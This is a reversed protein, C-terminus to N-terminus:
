PHKSDPSVSVEGPNPTILEKVELKVKEELINRLEDAQEKTCIVKELSKYQALTKFEMKSGAINLRKLLPLQSPKTLFKVESGELNLEVIAPNKLYALDELKSYSLDLYVLPINELQRVDTSDLRNNILSLHSVSLLRVPMLDKVPGEIKLHNETQEYSVKVVKDKSSNEIAWIAVKVKDKDKRLSTIFRYVLRSKLMVEKEDLEDLLEILRYRKELSRKPFSDLEKLYAEVVSYDKRVNVGADYATLAKEYQNDLVYFKGLYNYYRPNSDLKVAMELFSIGRKIDNRFENGSNLLGKYLNRGKQYNENAVELRNADEKEKLSTVESLATSLETNKQNISSLYFLVLGLLVLVNVALFSARTKHRIIWKKLVRGLGANEANTVLGNNFNQVDQILEGVNQYRGEPTSSLARKCIAKVELPIQKSDLDAEGPVGGTLLDHLLAGLGYVDTRKDCLGRTKQEPAMFGPTGRVEGVLTARSVPLVESSEVPEYDSESYIMRSIGWDCLLIGGFDDVRINSPKIDLHLVGQSHAYSVAECVKLFLSLIESLELSGYPVEELSKGEYLQMVFFPEGEEDYGMDYTPSIYVHKLDAALRAENFFDDANGAEKLKALAVDRNMLLDRARFVKKLAGEGLLEKVEYRKKLDQIELSTSTETITQRLEEADDFAALLTDRNLKQNM